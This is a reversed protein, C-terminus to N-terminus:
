QNTRELCQGPVAICEHWMGDRWFPKDLTVIYTVFLGNDAAIGSIRGVFSTPIGSDVKPRVIDSSKFQTHIM